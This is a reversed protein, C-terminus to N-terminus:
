WLVHSNIARVEDEFEQFHYVDIGAQRMRLVGECEVFHNPEYLAFVVRAFGMAIILQSCSLEKSARQSCPEMTCYITAGKLDEGAGLALDIAEEEAHNRPSTQHTFGSYVMYDTTVIVAGVRYCTDCPESKQSEAIAQKMYEEDRRYFFRRKTDIKTVSIEGLSYTDMLFNEPYISFLQDAFKKNDINPAGYCRTLEVSSRAYRIFDVQASELFMYLIQVGGEVMLNRFGRRELYSVIVAVSIKPLCIVTAVGGFRM